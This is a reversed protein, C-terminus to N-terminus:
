IGTEFRQAKPELADFDPSPRHIEWHDDPQGLESEDLPEGIVNFVHGLVADGVPVEIGHGTNVV